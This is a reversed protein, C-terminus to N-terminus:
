DEGTLCACTASSKRKSIPRITPPPSKTCYEIRALQRASNPKVGAASALVSQGAGLVEVPDGKAFGAM